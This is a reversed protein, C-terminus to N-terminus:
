GGRDRLGCNVGSQCGKGRVWHKDLKRFRRKHSVKDFARQSDLYIVDVAEEKAVMKDGGYFSAKFFRFLVFSFACLLILFELRERPKTNALM